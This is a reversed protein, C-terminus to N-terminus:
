KEEKIPSKIGIKGIKKGVNQALGKTAETAEITGTSIGKSIDKTVKGIKDLFEQKENEKKTQMAKSELIVEDNVYYLWVREGTKLKSTVKQNNPYTIRTVQGDEKNIYSISPRELKEAVRVGLNELDERAEYVNLGIVMPVKFECVANGLLIKSKNIVEQTLYYVKIPTGPKVKSGFKPELSVVINESDDAYAISPKAVALTPTLHLEEKLVRIAEDIPVDKLNPIKILSKQQEYVEAGIKVGLDVVEPVMIQAVVKGGKILGKTWGM